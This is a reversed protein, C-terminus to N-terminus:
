SLQVSYELWGLVRGHLHASVVAQPRSLQLLVLSSQLYWLSLSLQGFQLLCLACPPCPHTLM